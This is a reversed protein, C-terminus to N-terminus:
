VESMRAALLEDHEICQVVSSRSRSSVGTSTACQPQNRTLLAHNIITITFKAENRTCTQDLRMYDKSYHSERERYIYISHRWELACYLQVIVSFLVNVSETGLYIPIMTLTIYNCLVLTTVCEYHTYQVIIVSIYIYITIYVSLTHAPTM